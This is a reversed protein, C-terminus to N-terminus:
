TKITVSHAGARASADSLRLLISLSVILVWRLFM